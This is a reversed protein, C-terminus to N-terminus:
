FLVGLLELAPAPTEPLVPLTLPLEELGVTLPLLVLCPALLTLGVKLLLELGVGPAVPLAPVAETLLCDELVVTRGLEVVLVVERELLM